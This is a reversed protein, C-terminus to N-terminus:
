FTKQFVVLMSPKPNPGQKKGPNECDIFTLRGRIFRIEANGLIYEHFAKTDTICNILMVILKEGGNWEKFAKEIWKSTESYPPNCFSSTGWSIELGNPHTHPQWDIPCPDHNFHFEDDLEKYFQPPTLWKNNDKKM